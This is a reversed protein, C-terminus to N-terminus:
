IATGASAQLQSIPKKQEPLGVSGRALSSKCTILTCRSCQWPVTSIIETSWLKLFMSITEKKGTMNWPQSYKEWGAKNCCTWQKERLLELQATDIEIQSRMFRRSNSSRQMWTTGVVMQGVLIWQDSMIFDITSFAGTGFSEPQRNPMSRKMSSSGNLNNSHNIKESKVQTLLSHGDRLNFNNLLNSHRSKRFEGIRSRLEYTSSIPRWLSELKTYLVRFLQRPWIWSRKISCYKILEFM